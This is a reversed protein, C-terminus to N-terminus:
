PFDKMTAMLNFGETKMNKLLREETDKRICIAMLSLLRIIAAQRM